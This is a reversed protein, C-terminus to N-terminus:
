VSLANNVLFFDIVNPLININNEKLFSSIKEVSHGMNALNAIESNLFEISESTIESSYKDSEKFVKNGLLCNKYLGVVYDTSILKYSWVCCKYLVQKGLCCASVSSPVFGSSNCDKLSNWAKILKGDLAYQYVKKKNKESRTGYHLNYEKTCWELNIIENDDRIENIHNVEPLNEINPKFAQAVLRHVLFCKTYCSSSLNVIKYGDSTYGQKLIREKNYYLSRVRGWNSVQYMGGFGEVDRWEEISNSM